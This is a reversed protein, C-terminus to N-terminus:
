NSNMKNIKQELLEFIGPNYCERVHNINWLGSERIDKNRAYNGLWDKDPPDIPYESHLDVCFNSLLAITNREIFGRDSDPGPDDDVELWLFPMNGIYRSVEQELPKEEQRVNKSASSGDGWTLTYPNTLEYRNIFATGIHLRFISGRHNGGGDKQVGQHQSLRNWLTTKSNSKLAHTGIRVVRPGEGSTTRFENDEFFFYVGRQPWKMRGNCTELRRKDDVINELNDMLQYFRRVDELHNNDLYNM